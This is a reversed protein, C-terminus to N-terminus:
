TAFWNMSEYSLAPKDTFVAVLGGDGLGYASGNNDVYLEGTSSNYIVANADDWQNITNLDDAPRKKWKVKGNKKKIKRTTFRNSITLLRYSDRADDWGMAPSTFQFIDGNGVSFGSIVDASGEGYGDFDKFFFKDAFVTGNHTGRGAVFSKRDEGWIAKMAAKDSDTYSDVSFYEGNYSMITDDRSYLPNSGDGYPHDLAFLHGIEHQITTFEKWDGQEQEAWSILVGNRSSETLGITNVDDYYGPAAKFFVVQAQGRDSVEELAMGTISDLYKLSTDIASIESPSGSSMPLGNVEGRRDIYYKLYGDSPVLSRLLEAYEYDAIGAVSIGM